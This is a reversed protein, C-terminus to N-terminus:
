LLATKEGPNKDDSKVWLSISYKQQSDVAKDVSVDFDKTKDALSLSDGLATLDSAEVKAGEGSVTLKLDKKTGENVYTGDEGKKEFSWYGQATQPTVTQDAIAPPAAFVCTATVAIGALAYAIVHRPRRLLNRFLPRGAMEFSQRRGMQRGDVKSCACGLMDPGIYRVNEFMIDANRNVTPLEM